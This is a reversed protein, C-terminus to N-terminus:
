ISEHVTKRQLGLISNQNIKVSKKTTAVEPQFNEHEFM